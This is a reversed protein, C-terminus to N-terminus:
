QPTHAPLSQVSAAVHRAPSEAAYRWEQGCSRPVRDPRSRLTLWGPVRPFAPAACDRQRQEPHAFVTTEGAGATARRAGPVDALTVALVHAKGAGAPPM